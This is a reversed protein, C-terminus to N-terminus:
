SRRAAACEIVAVIDKVNWAAIPAGKLKPPPRGHSGKLHVGCVGMKLEYATEIEWEVWDRWATANGILCVLITARRLRQRLEQKIYSKNQSNIVEDLSRDRFDLELNPNKAMLRFGKVQPQDEIHHSLFIRRKRPHYTLHGRYAELLQTLSDFGRQELLNGLLMDSRANLNISYKKEISAVSTDSRKRRFSSISM